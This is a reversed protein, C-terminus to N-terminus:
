IKTKKFSYLSHFNSRNLLTGQSYENNVHVYKLVDRYVRTMNTDPEYHRDPYEIRNAIELWADTLTRPDTSVSFTNYMLPNATEEDINADNIFFIFVHRPKREGSNFLLFLLFIIQPVIVNMKIFVIRSNDAQQWIVQNDPALDFLIELRTEPLLKDELSEFLSYRNLPFEYYVVNSAGLLVKRQHFRKNYTAQAPRIETSRNTDLYLFENTARTESYSHSYELLNKINVSHNVDNCDYVKKVGVKVSVEKIMSHIGNVIGNSDHAAINTRDMKQVKFSMSIRANYWDSPSMGSTNHVVFRHNQKKQSANNAPNATVLPAELEYFIDEIREVYKPNRFM